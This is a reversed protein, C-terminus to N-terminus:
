VQGVIGSLVGNKIVRMATMSDVDLEVRDRELSQTYKLDEFVLGVVSISCFDLSKFLGSIWQWIESLEEM